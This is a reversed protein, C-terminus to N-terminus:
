KCKRLTVTKKGNLFANFAIRHHQKCVENLLNFTESVFFTSKSLLHSYVRVVAHPFIPNLVTSQESAKDSTDIRRWADSVRVPLIPPLPPPTPVQPPPTIATFNHIFCSSFSDMQLYEPYHPSHHSLEFRPIKVFYIFVTPPWEM